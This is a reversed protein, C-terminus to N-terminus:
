VFRLSDFPPNLTYAVISASDLVLEKFLLHLLIKQGRYPLRDHLSAIAGSTKLIMKLSTMTASPDAAQRETAEITILRTKVDRTIAQYSALPMIGAAFAEAAKLERAELETQQMRLSRSLERRRLARNALEREAVKLVQACVAGSLELARYLSVLNEHNLRFFYCRNRSIRRAADTSHPLEFCRLAVWGCSHKRAM